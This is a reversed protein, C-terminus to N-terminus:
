QPTVAPASPTASGIRNPPVQARLAAQQEANFKDPSTEVRREAEFIAKEGDNPAVPRFTVEWDRKLGHRARVDLELYYRHGSEVVLRFLEQFRAKALVKGTGPGAHFWYYGPGLELRQFDGPQFVGVLVEGCTIPPDYPDSKTVPRYIYVTAEDTKLTATRAQAEIVSTRDLQLEGDFFATFRTGVPIAMEEGHEFLFLPALPVGLGGTYITWAAMDTIMGKSRGTTRAESARLHANEGTVLQVTEIAIALKGGRGRRRKKEVSIVKGNATAREAVVEVDGLKVARIVEFLVEDGIKNTESSLRQTTRLVIAEGDKVILSDSEAAQEQALISPTGIVVLLILLHLLRV